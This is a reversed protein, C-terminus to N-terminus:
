LKRQTQISSTAHRKHKDPVRVERTSANGAAPARSSIWVRGQLSNLQHNLRDLSLLIKKEESSISTVGPRQTQATEMAVASHGEGSQGGTLTETLHSRAGGELGSCARFMEAPTKAPQSSQPLRRRGSGPSDKGQEPGPKRLVRGNELTQRRHAAGADKTNLACRVGRWLESIEEDTPTCTLCLGRESHAAGRRRCIETEQQGSILTTEEPLCYSGPPPLTTHMTTTPDSPVEPPSLLGKKETKPPPRPVAIRGQVKAIRSVEGASQPRIVAGKRTRSARFDGAQDRPRDVQVGVDMWAEKTFHYASCNATRNPKPPNLTYFGGKIQRMATLDEAEQDLHVEDFWRLKKKVTNSVRPDKAKNRSLEVSDRIALAVHNPFGLRDPECTRITERSEFRSQKKLIGKVLRVECASRSALQINAPPPGAQPPKEPSFLPDSVKNLNNISAQPDKQLKEPKPDENSVNETASDTMYNDRFLVDKCVGNKLPLPFDGAPPWKSQNGDHTKQKVDLSAEKKPHESNSPTQLFSKLPPHEPDGATIEWVALSVGDQLPTWSATKPTQKFSTFAWSAKPCLPDPRDSAEPKGETPGHPKRRDPQDEDCDPSVSSSQNPDENELSDKSSLSESSPSGEPSPDRYKETRSQEQLLKTYAEVASLARRHSSRCVTPPKPSLAGSNFNTNSSSLSPQWASGQIQILAEELNAAARRLAQRPRQAPPLHARQYRETAEQVEQRRKQLLKERLLQERADWQRRREELAKRRRNTELSLKRARARCLKQEEVLVQRENRLDGGSGRRFRSHYFFNDQFLQMRQSEQNKTLALM